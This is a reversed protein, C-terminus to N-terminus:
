LTRRWDEPDTLVGGVLIVVKMSKRLGSPLFGAPWEIIGTGGGTRGRTFFHRFSGLEAGPPVPGDTGVPFAPARHRTIINTPVDM